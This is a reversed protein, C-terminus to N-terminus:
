RKGFRRKARDFGVRFAKNSGIRKGARYLAFGTAAAIASGIFIEM